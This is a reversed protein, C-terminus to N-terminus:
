HVREECWSAMPGSATFKELNRDERGLLCLALEVERERPVDLDTFENRNDWLYARLAIKLADREEHAIYGRQDLAAAPEQARFGRHVPAQRRTRPRSGRSRNPPGATSQHGARRLPDDRRFAAGPWERGSFSHEKRCRERRATRGGRGRWGGRESAAPGLLSDMAGSDPYCLLDSNSYSISRLIEDEPMENESNNFLELFMDSHMDLTTVTNFNM